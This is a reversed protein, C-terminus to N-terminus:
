RERMRTGLGSLRFVICEEFKVRGGDCLDNCLRHVIIQEHSMDEFALHYGLVLDVWLQPHACISLESMDRAISYSPNLVVLHVTRIEKVDSGLQDPQTVCGRVSSLM